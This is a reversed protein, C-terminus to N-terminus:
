DTLTIKSPLLFLRYAPLLRSYLFVVKHNRARLQRALASMPNLHGLLDPCILGLKM